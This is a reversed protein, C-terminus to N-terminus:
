RSARHALLAHGMAVAAEAVLHEPPPPDRSLAEALMARLAGILAAGALGADVDPDVEGRRQAHRINRAAARAQDRQRMADARTAAAEHMLGAAIPRGLPHAYLFHVERRLRLAERELWTGGPGGPPDFVEAGYQDYFDHVVAEVLGDKGAFYRYIASQVVGARGAVTAIEVGGQEALVDRAAALLRARTAAGKGAPAAGRTM